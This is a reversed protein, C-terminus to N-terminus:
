GPSLVEKRALGRGKSIFRGKACSRKSNLFPQGRGQYFGALGTGDNSVCTGQAGIGGESAPVIPSRLNGSLVTTETADSSDPSDTLSVFPLRAWRSLRAILADVARM